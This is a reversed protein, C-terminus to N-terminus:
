RSGKRSVGFNSSMARDLNGNSIAKNVAKSITIDLIQTSGDKSESVQIESSTNNNINVVTNNPIAQVGLDGNSTRTLPVVAESRGAEGMLGTGGSIPFSTPRSIVGGNAFAVQRGNAFAGGKALATVPAPATTQSIGFFSGIGGAIPAVVQTRILIKLLDDLIAQTMKAFADTTGKTFDFVADELRNFTSEFGKQLNSTLTGVTKSYNEAALGAATFVRETFSDNIDKIKVLENAYGLADLQGARFKKNLDRIQINKLLDDYRKIDIAGASLAQNLQQLSLVGKQISVNFRSKSFINIADKADKANKNTGKFGSNLDELSKKKRLLNFEQREIVQIKRNLEDLSDSLQVVVLNAGSGQKEITEGGAIRAELITRQSRLIQGRDVLNSVQETIKKLPTEVEAATRGLESLVSIYDAFFVAVKAVAGSDVLAKALAGVSQLVREISVQCAKNLDFDKNLENLGIKVKNFAKTLTQGFTQGLLAADAQLQKASKALVNLVVDSTIKGTEGFKILAGRAIGFEDALLGGIVANAELVSRLEQGRLAGAALGQGLQISAAASEATTSGALRFSNQLTATFGVLQDTNLGLDKTAIAIRNFTEALSDISTNTIDAADFLLTMAREAEETSGTFVKIRDGLLQVSDAAQALVKLGRLGFVGLFVNRLGGLNGQIRKVRRGVKDLGNVIAKLEKEGVQKVRLTIQPNNNTPM